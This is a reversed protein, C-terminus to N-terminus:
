QAVEALQDALAIGILYAVRSAIGNGVVRYQAGLALEEPIVYWDPVSQIRLAERITFRRPAETPHQPQGSNHHAPITNSPKDFSQIRNAQGYTYVSTPTWYRGNVQQAPAPLDGIADYITQTRYDSATPHPFEYTLKLDSRVGVIFVRERKQAVGYDWANVLRWSVEYGIAAFRELIEDFTARHKKGILGKVNEFVFAKPQKANIIDLYSWVLKGRDGDVGKNSGAVSYDQCPPGGFIVDVDPLAAIDLATIDALEGHDGLNHRYAKIANKDFDFAKVIDFGAATFGVGGLGGGCFLELATFGNAPLQPTVNYEKTM